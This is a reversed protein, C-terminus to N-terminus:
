SSLHFGAEIRNCKPIERSRTKRDVRVHYCVCQRTRLGSPAVAACLDQRITGNQLMLCRRPALIVCSSRTEVAVITSVTGHWRIIIQEGLWNVPVQV